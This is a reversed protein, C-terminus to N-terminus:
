RATDPAAAKPLLVWLSGQQKMLGANETAEPGFGFFFDARVAGRIAGGVDQGMVLRQLPAGDKPMTTSLWVPAGLPLITRDIAISRGPTLPVNLAGRPGANPDTVKQETFFIYSANVNLVEQRRAPNAALWARISQASVQDPSLIGQEVFWRGIAKYPHGNQDAYGVRVTGGGDLQVRGSGQVELFFAEVPDNVWLLERGKLPARDIEARSYYPVLSKGSLRGRLRRSQLDPYISGLDVTVLDDPVRYLPTQYAGGRKRSGYLMAEYYGTVMGTDSGDPNRVQNPVFYTEFFRRVAAVDGADVSRAAACPTKWEAARTALVSCSQQFAPWAQRVDDQQWGPLAEFSVPTLPPTPAPPPEPAPAPQEAPPTPPVVVPGVPPPMTIPPQEPQPTTSCASLLCVFAILSPVSRRTTYMFPMSVFIHIRITSAPTASNRSTNITQHVM